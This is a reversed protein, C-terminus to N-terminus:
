WRGLKEGEVWLTADMRAAAARAERAARGREYRAGITAVDLPAPGVHHPACSALLGLAGLTVATRSAARVGRARSRPACSSRNMGERGDPRNRPRRRRRAGAPRDRRSRPVDGPLATRPGRAANAPAGRAPRGPPAAEIRDGIRAERRGARPERPAL